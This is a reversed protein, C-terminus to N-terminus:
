KQDAFKLFFLVESLNSRSLYCNKLFSVGSCSQPKMTIAQLFCTLFNNTRKMLYIELRKAHCGYLYKTWLVTSIVIVVTGM